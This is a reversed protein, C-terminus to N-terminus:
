MNLDLIVNDYEQGSEETKKYRQIAKEGNIIEESEYRLQELERMVTKRLSVENDMVLIKGHHKTLKVEERENLIKASSPLYITFTTGIEFQSELTIDRNHKKIISIRIYNGPKFPMDSSEGIILNDAAIRIIGGEPIAKAANLVINSIVQNIQGTDIEATRLGQDQSFECFSKSGRLAFRSSEEIIGEISANEKAPAGGKAFTLLQRTLTRTKISATESEIRLEFM